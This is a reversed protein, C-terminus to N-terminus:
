RRTAAHVDRHRHLREDLADLRELGAGAGEALLGDGRANSAARPKVASRTASALAVLAPRAVNTTSVAGTDITSRSAASFDIHLQYRCHLVIARTAILSREM